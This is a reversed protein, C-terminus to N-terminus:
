PLATAQQFRYKQFIKSNSAGFSGGPLRHVPPVGPNALREESISAQM